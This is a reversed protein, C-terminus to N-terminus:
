RSKTGELQFIYVGVMQSQAVSKPLMPNNRVSRNKNMRKRGIIEMESTRSNTASRFSCADTHVRRCVLDVSQHRLEAIRFIEKASRPAGIRFAIASHVGVGRKWDFAQSLRESATSGGHREQNQESAHGASEAAVEHLGVGHGHVVRQIDSSTGQM